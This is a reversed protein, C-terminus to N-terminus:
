GSAALKEEDHMHPPVEPEDATVFESTEALELQLQEIEGQLRDADDTRGQVVARKQQELLEELQLELGMAHDAARFDAM